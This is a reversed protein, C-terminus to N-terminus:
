KGGYKLLDVLTPDHPDGGLDMHTLLDHLHERVPRIMRMPLAKFHSGQRDTSFWDISEGGYQVDIQLTIEGRRLDFVAHGPPVELSEFPTFVVSYTEEDHRWMYQFLPRQIIEIFRQAEAEMRTLNASAALLAEVDAPTFHSM